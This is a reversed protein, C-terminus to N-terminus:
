KGWDTTDIHVFRDEAGGLTSTVGRGGGGSQPHASDRTEPVWPINHQVTLAPNDVIPAGRYGYLPPPYSHVTYLPPAMLYSGQAM